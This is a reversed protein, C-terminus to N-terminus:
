DVETLRRQMVRVVRDSPERATGEGLRDCFLVRCMKRVTKADNVDHRRRAPTGRHLISMVMLAYAEVGSVDPFCDDFISTLTDRSVNDEVNKDDYMELLFAREFAAVACASAAGSQRAVRERVRLVGAAFGNERIADLMTGVNGGPLVYRRRTSTSILPSHFVANSAVACKASLVHSLSCYVDRLERCAKEVTDATIAFEDDYKHKVNRRVNGCFRRLCATVLYGVCVAVTLVLVPSTALVLADLVGNLQDETLLESARTAVGDSFANWNRRVAAAAAPSMERVTRLTQVFRAFLATTTM